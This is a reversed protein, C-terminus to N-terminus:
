IVLWWGCARLRKVVAALAAAMVSIASVQGDSPLLNVAAQERAKARRRAWLLVKNMTQRVAAAEHRYQAQSKGSSKSSTTSAHMSLPAKDNALNRSAELGFPIAELRGATQRELPILHLDVSSEIAKSCTLLIPHKTWRKIAYMKGIVTYAMCKKKKIFPMYQAVAVSKAGLPLLDAEPHVKLNGLVLGALSMGDLNAPLKLQKGDEKDNHQTSDDVPGMALEVLTPFVDILEVISHSTVGPALMQPHRIILPVHVDAHLISHKGWLDFEGLKWGHDSFVAVVTQEAQGSSSLADYVRGFEYDVFSMCGRYARRTDSRLQSVSQNYGSDNFFAPLSEHGPRGAAFSNLSKLSSPLFSRVEGFGSVSSNVLQTAAFSANEGLVAAPAIDNWGGGKRTDDPFPDNTSDWFRKPCVKFHYLTSTDIFRSHEQVWCVSFFFNLFSRVMPLHPRVFGVALFWPIPKQKHTNSQPMSGYTAAFAKGAATGAAAEAAAVLGDTKAIKAKSKIFTKYAREAAMFSASSPPRQDPRAGLLHIAFAARSATRHDTYNEFSADGDHEETFCGAEALPQFSSARSEAGCTVHEPSLWQDYEWGRKEKTDAESGRVFGDPWEEEPTWSLTDDLGQHFIKGYSSTLYGANRFFEPMSVTGPRSKRFDCLMGEPEKATCDHSNIGLNDPRLGTLFSQRSPACDPFQAYARRFVRADRAFSKLRPTGPANSHGWMTLDPRMDDIVVMLVNLKKRGKGTVAQNLAPKGMRGVSYMHDSKTAGSIAGRGSNGSQRNEENASSQGPQRKAKLIHKNTRESFEAKNWLPAPRLYLWYSLNDDRDLVPLNAELSATGVAVPKSPGPAPFGNFIEVQTLFILM